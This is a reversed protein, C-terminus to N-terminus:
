VKDWYSSFDDQEEFPVPVLLRSQQGVISVESLVWPIVVMVVMKVQEELSLTWTSGKLEVLLVEVM